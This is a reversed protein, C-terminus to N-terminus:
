LLNMRRLLDEYRPDGTLLETVIYEGKIFVIGPDRVAFGRELAAITEDKDGWAAYVNAVQWSVDDGYTEVLQDLREQAAKQDGMEHYLVAEQEWRLFDLAEAGIADLAKELEGRRLYVNSLTYHIAGGGPLTTAMWQARALSEDTRGMRTLGSVYSRLLTLNLPDQM